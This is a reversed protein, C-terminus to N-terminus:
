RSSGEQSIKKEAALKKLARSVTEREVGLESALGQHTIKVFGTDDKQEKLFKLLREKISSFSIEDIKEVFGTFRHSLSSFVLERFQTDEALKRDFTNKDFVIADVETETIGTAPYTSSSLICTSTLICLNDPNVRYLTLEQGKESVKFVKIQGNLVVLFKNCPDGEFFVEQNKPIKIQQGSAKLDEIFDHQM